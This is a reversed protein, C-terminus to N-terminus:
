RGSPPPDVCKKDIRAQQLLGLDASAVALDPGYVTTAVLGGGTDQRAKASLEELRKVRTETASIKALVQACNDAAFKNQVVIGYNVGSVQSACGALICMALVPLLM